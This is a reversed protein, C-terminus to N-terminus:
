GSSSQVERLTLAHLEKAPLMYTVTERIKDMVLGPVWHSPCVRELVVSTLVDM